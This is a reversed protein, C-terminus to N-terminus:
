LVTAEVAFTGKDTGYFFCKVFLDVDSPPSGYSFRQSFRLEFPTELYNIDLSDDFTSPELQNSPSISGLYVKPISKVFPWQQKGATFITDVQVVGNIVDPDYPITIKKDYDLSTATEYYVVGSKNSMRQLLKIDQAMHQLQKLKELLQRQETLSLRNM